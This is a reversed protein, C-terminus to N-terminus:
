KGDMILPTLVDSVANLFVCSLTSSIKHVNYSFTLRMCSDKVLSLMVKSLAETEAINLQTFFAIRSTSSVEAWSDPFRRSCTKVFSLGYRVDSPLSSKGSAPFSNNPSPNSDLSLSQVSVALV